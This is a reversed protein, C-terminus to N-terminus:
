LFRQVVDQAEAQDALRSWEKAMLNWHARMEPDARSLDALRLMEGVKDRYHAAAQM